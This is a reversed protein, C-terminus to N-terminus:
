TNAHYEQGPVNCAFSYTVVGAPLEARPIEIPGTWGKYSFQNRERFAASKHNYIAQIVGDEDRFVWATDPLVEVMGHRWESYDFGKTAGTDVRKTVVWVRTFGYPQMDLERFHDVRFQVQGRKRRYVRGIQIEEEYQTARTFPAQWTHRM